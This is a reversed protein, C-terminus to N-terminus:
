TPELFKIQFIRGGIASNRNSVRNCIDEDNENAGEDNTDGHNQTEHCENHKASDNRHQCGYDTQPYPPEVSLQLALQLLIRGTALPARASDDFPFKVDDLIVAIAGM